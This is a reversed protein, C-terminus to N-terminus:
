WLLQGTEAAGHLPGPLGQFLQPRLARDCTNNNIVPEPFYIKAVPFHLAKGFKHFLPCINIGPLFIVMKTKWAAFGYCIKNGPQSGKGILPLKLRFFFPVFLKKDDGVPADNPGHETQQKAKVM